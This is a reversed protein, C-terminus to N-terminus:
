NGYPGREQKGCSLVRLGITNPKSDRKLCEMPNKGTEREYLVSLLEFRAKWKIAEREWSDQNM